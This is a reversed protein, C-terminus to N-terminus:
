HISLYTQSHIPGLMTAMLVKDNKMDDVERQLISKEGICSKLSESQRKFNSEQTEKQMIGFCDFQM